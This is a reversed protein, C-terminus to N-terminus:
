LLRINYIFWVFSEFYRLGTYIYVTGKDPTSDDALTKEQSIIIFL